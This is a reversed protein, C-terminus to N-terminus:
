EEIAVIDLGYGRGKITETGNELTIYMRATWDNEACEREHELSVVEEFSHITSRWGDVDIEAIEVYMAYPVFHTICKVKDTEDRLSVM